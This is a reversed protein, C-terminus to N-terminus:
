RESLGYEILRQDFANREGDQVVFLVVPAAGEPKHSVVYATHAASLGDVLTDLAENRPINAANTLHPSVNCFGTTQALYRSM